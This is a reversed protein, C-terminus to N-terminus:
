FKIAPPPAIQAADPQPAAALAAHHAQMNLLWTTFVLGNGTERVNASVVPGCAVGTAPVADPLTEDAPWTMGQLVGQSQKAIRDSETEEDPVLRQNMGSRLRPACLGSRDLEGRWGWRYDVENQSFPEPGYKGTLGALIADDTAVGQPLFLYRSVGVVTEGHNAPVTVLGVVEMAQDNSGTSRSQQVHEPHFRPEARVYLRTGEWVDDRSHHSQTLFVGAVEMHDRILADAEAFSMGLELGIVDVAAPTPHALNEVDAKRLTDIIQWENRMRGDAGRVAVQQLKDTREGTAEIVLLGLNRGPQKTQLSSPLLQFDDIRATLRMPQPPGSAPWFPADRLLIVGTSHVDEGALDVGAFVEKLAADPRSCSGVGRGVARHGPRGQLVQVMLPRAYPVQVNRELQINAALGGVLDFPAMPTPDVGLNKVYDDLSHPSLNTALARRLTCPQQNFMSSHEFVLLEPLADVRAETWAKFAAVRQTRQAPNPLPEDTGFFRGWAVDAAESQAQTEIAWREVLMRMYSAETFAEPALKLTLLDLTETSFPLAPPPTVTAVTPDGVPAQGTASPAQPKFRALVTVEGRRVQDPSLIIVDLLDVYVTARRDQVIATNPVAQIRLPLPQLGAGVDILRRAQAEDVPLFAFQAPDALEVGGFDRGPRGSGDGAAVAQQVVEFGGRDADYPGFQASGQLWFQSPLDELLRPRIEAALRPKDLEHAQRYAPNREILAQELSANGGTHVLAIRALQEQSALTLGSVEAAMQDEASPPAPLLPEVDFERILLDGNPGGFLRVREVSLKASRLAVSELGVTAAGQQVDFDVSNLQLDIQWFLRRGSSSQNDVGLRELLARADDSTVELRAPLANLPANPGLEAFPTGSGLLEFMQESFDYEGLNTQYVATIPLPTEPVHARALQIAPARAATLAAQREFENGEFRAGSFRRPDIIRQRQGPSALDNVIWALTSNDLPRQEDAVLVEGLAFLKFLGDTANGLGSMPGVPIRDMRLRGDVTALRGIKALGEISKDAATLPPPGPDIQLRHVIRSPERDGKDTAAVVADTLRGNVDVIQNYSSTSPGSSGEISTIIASGIVSIAQEDQLKQFIAQASQDGATGLRLDLPNELLLTTAGGAIMGTAEHLHDLLTRWQNMGGTELRRDVDGQFSIVLDVPAGSQGQTHARSEAVRASGSFRVHMPLASPSEAEALLQRRFGALLREKEGANAQTYAQVASREGRTRLEVVYWRELTRREDLVGPRVRVLELALARMIEPSDFAPLEGLSALSATSSVAAPATPTAEAQVHAASLPTELIAALAGATPEGPASTGDRSLFQALAGATKPGWVGDPTGVDYGRANLEGQLRQIGDRDLPQDSDVPPAAGSSRAAVWAPPSTEALRWGNDQGVRGFYSADGGVEGVITFGQMAPCEFGLSVRLLGILKQLAIRDGEFASPDGSTVVVSGGEPACQWDPGTTAVLGDLVGLQRATAPQIAFATACVGIALLAATMIRPM